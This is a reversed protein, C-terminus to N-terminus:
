LHKSRSIVCISHITLCILLCLVVVLHKLFLLLLSWSKYYYDSTKWFKRLSKLLIKYVQSGALHNTQNSSKETKMSNMGLFTFNRYVSWIAIWLPFPLFIWVTKHLMSYSITRPLPSFLYYYVSDSQLSPQLFKLHYFLDWERATSLAKEKKRKGKCLTYTM